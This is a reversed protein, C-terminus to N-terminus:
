CVRRLVTAKVKNKALYYAATLGASGAGVVVVDNDFCALLKRHYQEIITRSIEIEKM